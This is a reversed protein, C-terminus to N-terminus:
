PADWQLDIEFVGPIGTMDVVPVSMRKSLFNSCFERLSIAAASFAGARVEIVQGKAKAPDVGRLQFERDGKVLAYVEHGRQEIRYRLGFRERLMTQLMLRGVDRTTGAPMVAAIQFKEEGIRDPGIIRYSENISFAEKIIDDLSLDVSLL